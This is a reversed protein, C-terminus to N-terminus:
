SEGEPACFSGCHANAGRGCGDGCCHACGVLWPWFRENPQIAWCDLPGVGLLEELERESDAWCWEETAPGDDESLCMAGSECRYVTGHLSGSSTLWETLLDNLGHSTGNEDINDGCGTCMTLVLAILFASGAGCAFSFALEFIDASRKM